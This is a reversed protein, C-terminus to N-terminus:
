LRLLEKKKAEFEEETIIGSDLLEKYKLLTDADRSESARTIGSFAESPDVAYRGDGYQIDKSLGLIPMFIFSLLALGWGFGTSQNFAHALDIFMKIFIYINYFPILLLLMRWGDGYLIEFLVYTSYFPIIGEWGERGMKQFVFWQAVLVIVALIFELM